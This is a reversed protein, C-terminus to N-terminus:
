QKCVQTMSNQHLLLSPQAGTYRHISQNYEFMYIDVLPPPSRHFTRRLRFPRMYALPEYENDSDLSPQSRHNPTNKTNEPRREIYIHCSGM